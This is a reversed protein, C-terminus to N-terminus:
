FDIELKSRSITACFFRTSRFHSECSTIWILECLLSIARCSSWKFLLFRTFLILFTERAAYILPNKARMSWGLLLGHTSPWLRKASNTAVCWVCYFFWDLAMQGERFAEGSRKTELVWLSEPKKKREAGRKVRLRSACFVGAGFYTEILLTSEIAQNGISLQIM